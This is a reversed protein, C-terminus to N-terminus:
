EEETSNDDDEIGTTSKLYQVEAPTRMFPEIMKTLERKAAAKSIEKKAKFVDVLGRKNPNKKSTNMRVDCCQLFEEATLGSANFASIIDSCSSKGPKTKLEFGPITVGQKIVMEKAFHKIADCWKSLVRALALAKAMEAPATIASAHYQELKWDERGAAVTQARVNLAPCTVKLACWNCYDCPTPQKDPANYAEAIKQVIELASDYTFKLVEIRKFCAYLVHVTVEADPSLGPEGLRALAYLAMQSKYGTARWKMDFIDLECKADTTGPIITFDPLIAECPTEWEIAHDAMNAKLRIYEAAWLVGERDEEPLLSLLSDDGEFHRHLATHRDHGSETFDTAGSEFCPCKELAPLSSARLM